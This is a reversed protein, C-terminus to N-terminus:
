PNKQFQFAVFNEALKSWGSGATCLLGLLRCRDLPSPQCGDAVDRRSRGTFGAATGDGTRWKADRRACQAEERRTRRRRRAASV